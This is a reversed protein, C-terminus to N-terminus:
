ECGFRQPYAEAIHRELDAHVQNCIEIEKRAEERLKEAVQAPIARAGYYYDQLTRYPIHTVASLERLNFGMGAVLIHMAEATMAHSKQQKKTTKM